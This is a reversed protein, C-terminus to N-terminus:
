QDKKRGYFISGNSPKQINRKKRELTKQKLDISYFYNKGGYAILTNDDLMEISYIGSNDFDFDSPTKLNLAIFERSGRPLVFFGSYTFIYINGQSDEKMGRCSIPDVLGFDSPRNLMQEFPYKQYQEFYIGNQTQVLARGQQTIIADFIITPYSFSDSFVLEFGRHDNEVFEYHLLKNNAVVLLDQDYIQQRGIGYSPIIDSFPLDVFQINLSKNYQFGYKKGLYTYTGSFNKPLLNGNNIITSNEASSAYLLQLQKGKLQCWSNSAKFIM